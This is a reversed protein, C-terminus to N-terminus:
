WAACGARSGITAGQDPPYTQIREAVAVQAAASVDSTGGLRYWNAASIGLSDPYASGSYFWPGDLQYDRTGGEECWAM